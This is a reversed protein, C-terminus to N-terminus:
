AALLELLGGWAGQKRMDECYDHWTALGSRAPTRHNFWGGLSREMTLLGGAVQARVDKATKPVLHKKWKPDRCSELAQLLSAYLCNGAGPNTVTTLGLEEM